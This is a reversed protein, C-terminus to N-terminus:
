ANLTQKIKESVLKMDARGQVQAKVIGMVKGMDKISQAQTQSIAATIIKDIEEENLPEPLYQQILEIEYQEKAALDERQAQQYQALSDRRQKLMKELIALVEDDNSQIKADVEKQKIAALILRIAALKQSDKAKMALKMDEQIRLKLAQAM